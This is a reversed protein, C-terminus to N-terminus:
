IACMVISANHSRNHVEGKHGLTPGVELFGYYASVALHGPTEALLLRSELNEGGLMAFYRAVCPVAFLVSYEYGTETEKAMRQQLTDMCSRFSDAVDDKQILGMNVRTGLPLSSSFAASGAEVNTYSICRLEAIGDDEALKNRLQCPLPGYQVLADVGNRRDEPSIGVSRMYDCFSMDDLRYVVNYDSETVAPAYESMPTMQSGVGFVPRIGGGLAILVMRDRYAEGGAFVAAKTSDLDNMNMGGFLPTEGTLGILRTVFHDVTLGPIMPMYMMLMKPPGTLGRVCNEYLQEMQQECLDQQLPESIQISYDLQELDLVTLTASREENAGTLPDTFTTGGIVPFNIKQKLIVLLEDYDVQSDCILFGIARDSFADPLGATLEDAIVSVQFFDTSFNSYTAM